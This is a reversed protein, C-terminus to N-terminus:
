RVVSTVFASASMLDSRDPHSIGTNFVAKIQEADRHILQLVKTRYLETTKGQCLFMGRYRCSGPLWDLMIREIQSKYYQTPELGCSAFVAIQADHLQSLLLRIERDCSHNHVPFGIFYCDARPIQMLDAINCLDTHEGPLAHFIREALARTNGTQSTYLVAYRM